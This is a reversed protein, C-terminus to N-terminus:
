NPMPTFAFYLVPVLIFVSLNRTVVAYWGFQGTLISELKDKHYKIPGSGLAVSKSVTSKGRMLIDINDDSDDEVVGLFSFGV